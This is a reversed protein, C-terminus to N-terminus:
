VTKILNDLNYVDEFLFEEALFDLNVESHEVEKAYIGAIQTRDCLSYKGGNKVFRLCDMDRIFLYSLVSLKTKALFDYDDVCRGQCMFIYYVFLKEYQYLLSNDECYALWSNMADIYTEESSFYEFLDKLYNEWKDNVSDLESFTKMRKLFDNYSIGCAPEQVTNEVPIEYIRDFDDENLADQVHKSYLMYAIIKKKLKESSQMIKICNDRAYKIAKSLRLEEKTEEFDLEEDINKEVFDIKKKSGFLLRGAEPCSVSIMLEREKGYELINRPTNTCVDCLAQEGLEIYLDCLNEKNLFPCRKDEGLLFGHEEYVDATESDYDKILKRLREGFEGPVSMYYEYSKKDIDIEWGACCTDECKGAICKFDDYFSPYRLIM